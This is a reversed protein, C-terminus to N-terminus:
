RRIEMEREIRAIMRLECHKLMKVLRLRLRRMEERDPEAVAFLMREFQQLYNVVEGCAFRRLEDRDPEAFRAAIEDPWTAMMKRTSALIEDIAM